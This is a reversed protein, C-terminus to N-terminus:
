AARKNSTEESVYPVLTGEGNFVFVNQVGSKHNTYVIENRENRELSAVTTFEPYSGVQNREVVEVKMVANPDMGGIVIMENESPHEPHFKKLLPVQKAKPLFYLGSRPLLAHILIRTERESGFSRANGINPTFSVGPSVVVGPTSGLQHKDLLFSLYDGDQLAQKGKPEYRGFNKSVLKLKQKEKNKFDPIEKHETTITYDSAITQNYDLFVQRIDKKSVPLFAFPSTGSPILSRYSSTGAMPETFFSILDQPDEIGTVALGRFLTVDERYFERRIFKQAEPRTDGFMEIQRRSVLGGIKVTKPGESTYIQVEDTTMKQFEEAHTGEWKEFRDLAVRYPEHRMKDKEPIADPNAPAYIQTYLECDEISWVGLGQLEEHHTTGRKVEEVWEEDSFFLDREAYELVSPSVGHKRLYWNMILRSLRGNGDFFPHLSVIDRQLKAARVIVEDNDKPSDEAALEQLRADLLEMVLMQEGPDAGLRDNAEPSLNARCSALLEPDKVTPYLIYGKHPDDGTPVFRVFFNKRLIQLEQDTLLLPKGLETMDSGVVGTDRLAGRTKSSTGQTLINQLEIVNDLTLTATDKIKKEAELWGEWARIGLVEEPYNDERLLAFELFPLDICLAAEAIHGNNSEIGLQGELAKCHIRIEDRQRETLFEKNGSVRAAVSSAYEKIYSLASLREMIEKKLVASVDGGREQVAGVIRRAKEWYMDIVHAPNKKEKQISGLSEKM